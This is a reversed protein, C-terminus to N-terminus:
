TSEVSSFIIVRLNNRLLAIQSTRISPPSKLIITYHVPVAVNLIHHMGSPWLLIIMSAMSM